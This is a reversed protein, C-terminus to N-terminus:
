SNLIELAISNYSIYSPLKDIINYIKSRRVSVSGNNPNLLEIPVNRRIDDLVSRTSEIFELHKKNQYDYPPLSNASLTHIHRKGLAGEAQFASNALELAKSNLLGTIFLAEDITDTIHYYITQDIILRHSNNDLPMIAACTRSGGAGYVVLFGQSPLKQNTLKNRVNLADKFIKKGPKIESFKNIISRITNQASRPMFSIDAESIEEWFGNENKKIPLFAKPMNAIAFPTLSHSLLVDFFFIKSISCEAVKFDKGTKM